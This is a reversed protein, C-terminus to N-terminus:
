PPTWVHFVVAEGGAGDVVDGADAGAGVVVFAAGTWPDRPVGPAPWTQTFVVEM